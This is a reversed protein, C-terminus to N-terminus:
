PLTHIHNGKGSRQVTWGRITHVHQNDRSTEGNGSKDLRYSHTHGANKSTRGSRKKKKQAMKSTTVKKVAM